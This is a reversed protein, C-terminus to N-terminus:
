LVLCLMAQESQVAFCSRAQYAQNIRWKPATLQVELDHNALLLIFSCIYVSYSSALHSSGVARLMPLMEQCMVMDGAVVHQRCVSYKIM